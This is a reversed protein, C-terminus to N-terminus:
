SKLRRPTKHNQPFKQKAGNFGWEPTGRRGKKRVIEHDGHPKKQQSRADGKDNKKKSKKEAKDKQKSRMLPRIVRKDRFFSLTREKKQETNRGTLNGHKTKQGNPASELSTPRKKFVEEKKKLEPPYGMKKKKKL